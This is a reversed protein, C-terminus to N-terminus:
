HRGTLLDVAFCGRVHPGPGRLHLLLEHDPPCGADELADALVALHAPDLHGSPLQREEYAATALRGILADNWALWSPDIRPKAGFPKGFLDRLLDAQRQREAVLTESWRLESAPDSGWLPFAVAAAASLAVQQAARFANRSTIRAATVVAHREAPAVSSAIARGAESLERRPTRGDAYVEALRVADRCPEDPLLGWTRRCCAAAFLRLKRPAGRHQLFRLMPHPDAAALWGAETM